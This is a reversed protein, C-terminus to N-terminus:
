RSKRRKETNIKEKHKKIQRALASFALNMALAFDEGAERCHLVVHPLYLSLSAYFENKHPNKDLAGHLYVLDDKFRKLYASVREAKEQFHGRIIDNAELHSVTFTTKM